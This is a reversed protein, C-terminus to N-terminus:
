NSLLHSANKLIINFCLSAWLEWAQKCSWTVLSLSIPFASSALLLPCKACCKGQSILWICCCCFLPFFACSCLSLLAECHVTCSTVQSVQQLLFSGSLGQHVKEPSFNWVWVVMVADRLTVKYNAFGLQLTNLIFNCLARNYAISGMEHNLLATQDGKLRLTFHLAVQIVLYIGLM